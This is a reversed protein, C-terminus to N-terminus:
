FFDIKISKERNKMTMYSDVVLNCVEDEMPRWFGIRRWCPDDPNKGLHFNISGVSRKALGAKFNNFDSITSVLLIYSVFIYVLFKYASISTNNSNYGFHLLLFGIFMTGFPALVFRHSMKSSLCEQDLCRSIQVSEGVYLVGAAFILCSLSYFSFIMLIDKKRNILTYISTAVFIVFGLILREYYQDKNDWLSLLDSFPNIFFYILWSANKWLNFFAFINQNEILPIGYTYVRFIFFTSLLFIVKHILATKWNYCFFIVPIVGFLIPMGFPNGTIVTFISGLLGLILFYNYRQKHFLFLALIFFSLSIILEAFRESLLSHFFSYYSNPRALLFIGLIFFINYQFNIQNAKLVYFLSIFLILISFFGSALFLYHNWGANASLAFLIKYLPWKTGSKHKWMEATDLTYDNLAIDILLFIEDNIVLDVPNQYILYVGYIFIFFPIFLFLSIPDKLNFLYLLNKKIM